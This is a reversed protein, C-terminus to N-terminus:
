KLILDVAESIDQALYDPLVGWRSKNEPKEKGSFVLITKLGAAKGTEVDKTTDGIFYGVSIKSKLGNGKLGSLALDILGTKPKRCSCNDEQRHTCYYVGAIKIKDSDLEQLMNRTITDLTKQSYIGKSVGAQNSIIFIKFGGECLKKLSSKVKPLFHFENWSKVYDKDGPYENIVGDRDLFIVKM